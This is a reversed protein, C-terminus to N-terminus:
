EVAKLSEAMHIKGIQRKMFINVILAFIVTGILAYVYSLPKIEVMFMILDIQIMSMVVRHFLIGLPLGVFGALVSLVVNETLVYSETEKTRFGLVEVTAVERSREALNINTLNYIVIFALAGSFLVVMLVIYDLCSLASDVVERTVNLQGVSAIGNIENVNKAVDEADGSSGILVTNESWEGFSEEYTEPSLMVYSYIYNEFIGAIKLEARIMEADQIEM